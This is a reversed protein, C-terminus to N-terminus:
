PSSGAVDDVAEGAGRAVTLFCDAPGGKFRERTGDPWRVEIALYRDFDGLGFHARPDHAALYGGGTSVVRVHRAEATIVVVQAGLADRHLEKEVARVSLWHGRKPLDNRYLRPKQGCYTVLVDVDGDNDVDGTVLARASGAGLAFAGARASQDMFRGVQDNIYLLNPAAFERWWAASDPVERRALQFQSEGHPPFKLSCHVVAGNVIPLDLYGDHNLDVLAAGWGTHAATGLTLRAQWSSDVFAGGEAQRYLTAYENMLHTALLDLDGDNDVDGAAAGMGAQPRGDAAYAAGRAVGEDLFTGNRQNIWLRNPGADNAVFLDPWHDGNFDACTVGFGNTPGANLGAAATVETFRVRATGAAGRV